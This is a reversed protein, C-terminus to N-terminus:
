ALTSAISCVPHCGPRCPACRPNEEEGGKGGSGAGQGRSSSSGVRDLGIALAAFTVEEDRRVYQRYRGVLRLFFNQVLPRAAIRVFFALPPDHCLTRM